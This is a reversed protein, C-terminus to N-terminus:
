SLGKKEAEECFIKHCLKFFEDVLNPSDAMMIKIPM